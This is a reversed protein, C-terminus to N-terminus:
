VLINRLHLQFKDTMLLMEVDISAFSGEERKSSHDIIRRQRL